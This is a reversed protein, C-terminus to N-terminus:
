PSTVANPRAVCCGNPPQKLRLLVSVMLSQSRACFKAAHGLLVGLERLDQETLDRIVSLHIANDAFRQAYEALGLKELWDAIQQM